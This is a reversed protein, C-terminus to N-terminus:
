PLLGKAVGEATKEAILGLAEAGASKYGEIRLSRSGNTSVQAELESFDTNTGFTLRRVTTGDPAVYSTSICGTCCTAAVMLLLNLLKM